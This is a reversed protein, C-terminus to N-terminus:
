SHNKILIQSLETEVSNVTSLSPILQKELSALHTPFHVPPAREPSKPEQQTPIDDFDSNDSDNPLVSEESASEEVEHAVKATPSQRSYLYLGAAVSVMVAIIAIRLKM